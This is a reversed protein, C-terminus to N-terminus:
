DDSIHPQLHLPGKIYGHSTGPTLTAHDPQIRNDEISIKFQIGAAPKM